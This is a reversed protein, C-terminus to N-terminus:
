PYLIRTLNEHKRLIIWEWITGHHLSQLSDWCDRRIRAQVWSDKYSWSILSLISSHTWSVGSIHNVVPQIWIRLDRTAKPSSTADLCPCHLDKLELNNAPSAEVYFWLVWCLSVLSNWDTGNALCQSMEIIEPIVPTTKKPALNNNIFIIWQKIFYLLM